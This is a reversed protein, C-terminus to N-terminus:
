SDASLHTKYVCSKGGIDLSDFFTFIYLIYYARIIILSFLYYSLGPFMFLSRTKISSVFYINIYKKPYSFSDMNIFKLNIYFYISICYM